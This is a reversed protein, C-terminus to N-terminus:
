CFAWSADSEPIQSAMTRAANTLGDASPRNLGLRVVGNRACTRGGQEITQAQRCDSDADLGSALTAFQLWEM